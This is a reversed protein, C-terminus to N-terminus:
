KLLPTGLTSGVITLATIVFGMLISNFTLFSDYVKNLDIWQNKLTHCNVFASLLLWFASINLQKDSTIRQKM